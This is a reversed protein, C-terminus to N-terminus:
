TSRILLATVAQGHVRLTRTGLRQRGHGYLTQEIVLADADASIREAAYAADLVELLPKTGTSESHTLELQEEVVLTDGRWWERTEGRVRCEPAQFEDHPDRLRRAGTSAPAVYTGSGARRTVLGLSGLEVLARRATMLSVAHRAALERESPLKAGPALRGADISARLGDVIRQYAPATSKRRSAM